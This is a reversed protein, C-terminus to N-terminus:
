SGTMTACCAPRILIRGARRASTTMPPRVSVDHLAPEGVGGVAAWALPEAVAVAAGVGRWVAAARCVTRGTLPRGTGPTGSGLGAASIGNPCDADAPCPFHRGAPRATPPTGVM